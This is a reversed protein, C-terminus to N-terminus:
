SLKQSQAGEDHAVAATSVHDTDSKDMASRQQGADAAGNQEAEKAAEEESLKQQAMQLKGFILNFHWFSIIAILSGMFFPILFTFQTLSIYVVLLNGVIMSVSRIPHGITILLASKLIQFLKMHLHSLISFFHFLSISVVVTLTLVLFRLVGLLGGQTGYYRFNTYLIVALLCYVFGGLMSQLFNEKYGRFFTKCLPADEEGTLWKRAVTYMATTSPFLTFPSLVALLIFTSLLQEPSEAQLLTLAIIFFPFACVVWLVNIVSLRMIWESIRYFGGMIGRFEM